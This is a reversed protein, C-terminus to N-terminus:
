AAEIQRTVEKLDDFGIPKIMIQDAQDALQEALIVDATTLIVRTNDYRSDARIQALLDAGSVGPLHLDLLIIDPIPRLTKLTNRALTGNQILTTTYGVQELALKFVFGQGPHDEIILAEGNPM